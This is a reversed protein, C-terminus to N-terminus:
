AAGDPLAKRIPNRWRNQSHYIFAAGSFIFLSALFILGGLFRALLPNSLILVVVWMPKEGFRYQSPPRRIADVTMVIGYILVALLFLIFLEPIGIGGFM